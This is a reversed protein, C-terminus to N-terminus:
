RESPPIAIVAFSTLGFGGAEKKGPPLFRVSSSGNFNVYLTGGDASLKIGYTGAPTYECAKNFAPGLYAIVKRQGTAIEYQIVPTGILRAGGHGGPLYYLFREDPSLEMVHITDSHASWPLGLTTLKNEKVSLRFLQATNWLVGYIHGDSSERPPNVHMGPSGEMRIGTDVVEQRKADWKMLSGIERPPQPAPGIAPAKAPPKPPAEGRQKAEEVQKLWVAREAAAKVKAQKALAIHAEEEIRYQKTEASDANFFVSGDKALAFARRLAMSGKPAEFTEKTKLDIGWLREDAPGGGELNCWWRNRERDFLSESATRAPPLSLYVKTKGTAPNYQYLQGGPLTEDWHYNPSGALRGNNLTCSFYINGDSGEHLKAHLKPWSVRGAKLPVVENMDIVKDLRKQKPDFCYVFCRADGAKDDGHDGIGVYVRGDSALCIDGWSSWLRRSAADPGLDGHFYLDIKPPTKAVVFPVAQGDKVEQPADPVTLLEPSSLSIAGNVVNPLQPPWPANDAAQLPAIMAVLLTVKGVLMVKPM